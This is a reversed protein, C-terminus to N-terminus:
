GCRHQGAPCGGDGAVRDALGGDEPLVAGDPVETTECENWPLWCYPRAPDTCAHTADCYLPNDCGAFAVLASVALVRWM